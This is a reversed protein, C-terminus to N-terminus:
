LTLSVRTVLYKLSCYLLLLIFDNSVCYCRSLFFMSCLHNCLILSVYAFVTTMNLTRQMSPLIVRSLIRLAVDTVNKTMSLVWLGYSWTHLALSSFSFQICYFFFLYQFLDLRSMLSEFFILITDIILVIGDLVYWKIHLFQSWYSLSLTRLLLMCILRLFLGSSLSSEMEIQNFLKQALYLM